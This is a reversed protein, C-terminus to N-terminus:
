RHATTVQNVVLYFVLAEFVNRLELVSELPEVALLTALVSALVFASFPLLLPVRVQRLDGQLALRSAWAILAVIYAMQLATISIVACVVYGFLAGVSVRELLQQLRHRRDRHALMAWASKTSEPTQHERMSRSAYRM